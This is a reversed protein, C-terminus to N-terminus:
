ARLRDNGPIGCRGIRSCTAPRREGFIDVELRTGPWPSITRLMGLAISASVTAGAGSTTEGVVAGDHWLTSM